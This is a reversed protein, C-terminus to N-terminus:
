KKFKAYIKRFIFVPIMHIRDWRRANCKLCDVEGCVTFQKNNKLIDYEIQYSNKAPVLISYAKGIYGSNLCEHRVYHSYFKYFSLSCLGSDRRSFLKIEGNDTKYYSKDLGPLIVRRLLGLNVEALHATTFGPSNKVCGVLVCKGNLDIVKQVPDYAGSNENHDSVIIKANKGIAVYSCTPHRSRCSDKHRIMANPLAGANSKKNLDFADKKKPMRIFTSSTFALSVITGNEGVVELLAEIFAAGGNSIFGVSNLGGRILITDGSVIGLKKMDQIIQDKTINGKDM